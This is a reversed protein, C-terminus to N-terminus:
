KIIKYDKFLNTLVLSISAYNEVKEGFMTPVINAYNCFEPTVMENIGKRFNEFFLKGSNVILGAVIINGIDLVNIINGVIKGIEYSSSKIIKYYPEEGRAAKEFITENSQNDKVIIGSQELEWNIKDNLSTVSYEAEFCGYKGCKCKYNSQPNIVFHGIEGSCFNAGEFIKGDIVLSSGIGDKMYLFIANKIDSQKNYYMEAKLMSRVDNDVVVPVNFKNEFYERIKINSLKLHPSFISLGAKSNVVGNISLGIGVINESNLESFINELKETLFNMIKDSSKITFNERKSSIISGDFNAISIDVFGAGFNIGIIKKYDKNLKLIKRPRGGNSVLSLGETVLNYEMLRKIIKSIAAPTIKFTESLYTRTIDGRKSILELVEYDTNNLRM